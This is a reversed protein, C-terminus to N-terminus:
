GCKYRLFSINHVFINKRNLAWDSSNKLGNKIENMESSCISGSTNIFDNSEIIKKSSYDRTHLFLDSKIKRFNFASLDVQNSDCKAYRFDICFCILVFYLVNKYYCMIKAM